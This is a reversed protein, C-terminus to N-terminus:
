GDSSFCLCQIHGRESKLLFIQKGSPVDWVGIANALLQGNPSLTAVGYNRHFPLELLVEGTNLDLVRRSTALRSGDASLSPASGLPLTDVDGSDHANWLMINGDDSASVLKSGDPNFAVCTVRDMHGRIDFVLKGSELNWVKVTRDGGASALQKGDPHYSLSWVGSHHGHFMRDIKKDTTDWITITGDMQGTAITKGDPSVALAYIRVSGPNSLMMLQEGTHANWIETRGKFGGSIIWEGNASYAVTVVPARPVSADGFRLVEDGNSSDCILISERSAVTIQKGDPSYALGGSHGATNVKMNFVEQGSKLNHVTLRRSRTIVAAHTGDHNVVLDSLGRRDVDITRLEAGTHVDWVKLTGDRSASVVVAGDRSFVAKKVERVHGELSLLQKHCLHWLYRWEVSRFDIDHPLKPRQEELIQVADDIRADHWAAFANRIQSFYLLRRVRDRETQIGDLAALTRTKEDEVRELASTRADLAGTILVNSVILGVILLLTGFTSMGILAAVAPQRRTWKTAREWSGSRRATIPLGKMWREFDDMLDAANVYRRHREKELCKLCITELDRPTDSNLKRPSPPDDKVIQVLLMQKDGRFPLEGTLLEFLIVGLSYIDARRDAKYGEGRAQEPSMYAPTGLIQGEVTMTIEGADRKALGFDVIHPEGGNDMMINGPKLDRHIVGAEHAHHLAKAIKICLAAAEKPTLQKEATWEKLTVGDVFDSVIYITDDQKGVEHVSVINPHKLQAAARADRLFLETQAEDLHVNRPIKIAVTRDLKTDRAKWVSGFAGVGVRDLLQFHGITREGPSYHSVTNEGVLSFSSGCTPCNIEALPADELLEVPNRCHPCRAHLAQAAAQRLPRVLKEMRENKAFFERLEAAFQPYEALWWESMVTEGADIARMLDALIQDFQESASNRVNDTM